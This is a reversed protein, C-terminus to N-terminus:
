AGPKDQSFILVSYAGIGITGAIPFGDREAANTNRAEDRPEAGAVADVCAQNGFARSCVADAHPAWVRFAVGSEPPTAGMGTYVKEPALTPM